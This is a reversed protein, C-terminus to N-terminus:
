NNLRRLQYLLDELNDLKRLSVTFDELVSLNPNSSFEQLVQAVVQNAIRNVPRESSLLVTADCFDNDAESIRVLNVFYSKDDLDIQDNYRPIAKLIIPEADSNNLKDDEFQYHITYGKNSSM